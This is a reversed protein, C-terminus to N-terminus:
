LDSTPQQVNTTPQLNKELTPINGGIYRSFRSTQYKSRLILLQGIIDWMHFCHARQSLVLSLLLPKAINQMSIKQKRSNTCVVLEMEYRQRINNDIELKVLFVIMVVVCRGFLVNNRVHRCVWKKINPGYICNM